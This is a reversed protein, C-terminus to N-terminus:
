IPDTLSKRELEFAEHCKYHAPVLRNACLRFAEANQNLCKHCEPMSRTNNPNTFSCRHFYDIHHLVFRQGKVGKRLEEGCFACVGRNEEFVFNKMLPHKQAMLAFRVWSKMHRKGITKIADSASMSPTLKTKDM